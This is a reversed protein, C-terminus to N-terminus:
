VGIHNIGALDNIFIHEAKNFLDSFTGSHLQEVETGTARYELVSQFKDILARYSLVSNADVSYDALDPLHTAIFNLMSKSQALLQRDDENKLEDYIFCFLGQTEVMEELLAFATVKRSLSLTFHMIEDRILSYNESSKRCEDIMDRTKLILNLHYLFNEFHLKEEPQIEGNLSRKSFVDRFMLYTQLKQEQTQTM